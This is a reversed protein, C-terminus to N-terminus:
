VNAELQSCFKLLHPLYKRDWYAYRLIKIDPVKEWWDDNQNPFNVRGKSYNRNSVSLLWQLKQKIDSNGMKSPAVIIVNPKISIYGFNGGEIYLEYAPPYLFKLLESKEDFPYGNIKIAKKVLHHPFILSIENNQNPNTSLKFSKGNSFETLLGNYNVKIGQTNVWQCDEFSIRMRPINNLYICLEGDPISTFDLDFMTEEDRTLTPMETGTYNFDFVQTSQSVRFRLFHTEKPFIYTGDKDVRSPLYRDFFVQPQREGIQRGLWLALNNEVSSLVNIPIEILYVNWNENLPTKKNIYSELHEPIEKALSNHVIAWYNEEPYLPEHGMLKRGGTESYSFYNKETESLGSVGSELMNWIEQSVEGQKNFLYDDKSPSVPLYLTKKFAESNLRHQGLKGAFSVYGSWFQTYNLAPIKINLSIMGENKTNLILSPLDISIEYDEDNFKGTETLIPFNFSLSPHYLDCDPSAAGHLHAFYPRCFGGARLTVEGNCTPCVYYNNRIGSFAVRLANDATIDEKTIKNRAYDM